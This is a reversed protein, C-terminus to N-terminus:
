RGKSAATIAEAYANPVLAGLFDDWRDGVAPDNPPVVMRARFAEMKADRTVEEVTRGQAQMRRVAEVTAEITEIVLDLYATGQQVEGHGPVIYLPNLARLARLSRAWESPAASGAYPVPHVLMDGTALVREGPLWAVADGPTDGPGVFLIDIVRKASHLRLAKEFTEDPPALKINPGDAAYYNRFANRVLDFMARRAPTLPRGAIDVGTNYISDYMNASTAYWSRPRTALTQVTPLMATRATDTSIVRIGPFAERFSQLGFWHDGHSHTILLTRVPNGTVGRLLEITRRAASPSRNADVAFVDADNVVFM